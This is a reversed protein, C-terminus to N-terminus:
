SIIKMLDALNAWSTTSYWTTLLLVLMTKGREQTM